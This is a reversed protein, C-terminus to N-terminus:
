TSHEHQRRAQQARGHTCATWTSDERAHMSRAHTRARSQQQWREALPVHGEQRAVHQREQSRVAHTGARLGHQGLVVLREYVEEYLREQLPSVNLLLLVLM